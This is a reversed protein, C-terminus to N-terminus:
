TRQDSAKGRENEPTEEEEENDQEENEDKQGTNTIEGADIGDEHLWKAIFIFGVVAIFSM